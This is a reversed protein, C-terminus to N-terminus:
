ADKSHQDVSGICRAPAGAWISRAPTSRTLVANAGVVSDPGIELVGFEALVVAGTCLWAGDGVVFGRLESDPVRLYPRGRGITVNPYITVDNGLVTRPHLVIGRGRHHVRLRKGIRVSRPVDVGLLLLFQRVLAGVIRLQQLYILQEIISVRRRRSQVM